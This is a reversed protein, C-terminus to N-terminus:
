TCSVCFEATKKKKTRATNTLKTALCMRLNDCPQLYILRLWGVSSLSTIVLMLATVNQGDTVAAHIFLPPLCIGTPSIDRKSNSTNEWDHFSCLILVIALSAHFYFCYCPLIGSYFLSVINSCLQCQCLGILQKIAISVYMCIGKLKHHWKQCHGQSKPEAGASLSPSLSSLPVPPPPM